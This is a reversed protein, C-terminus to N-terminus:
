LPSMVVQGKFLRVIICLILEVGQTLVSICVVVGCFEHATVRPLYYVVYYIKLRSVVPNSNLKQVCYIFFSLILYVSLSLNHFLVFIIFCTKLICYIEKNGLYIFCIYIKNCANVYTFM